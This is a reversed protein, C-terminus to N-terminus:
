GARDDGDSRRPRPTSFLSSLLAVSFIQRQHIRHLNAIRLSCTETYFYLSMM